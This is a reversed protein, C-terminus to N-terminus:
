LRCFLIMGGGTVVNTASIFIAYGDVRASILGVSLVVIGLIVLAIGTGLRWAKQNSMTTPAM